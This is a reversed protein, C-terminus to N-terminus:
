SSRVWQLAYLCLAAKRENEELERKGYAQALENQEDVSFQRDMIEQVVNLIAREEPSGKEVKQIGVYIRGRTSSDLAGDVVFRFHNRGSGQLVIEITGGDRYIDVFSLELPQTLDNIREKLM